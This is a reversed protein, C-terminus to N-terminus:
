MEGIRWVADNGRVMFLPFGIDQGGENRVVTYYAWNEGLRGGVLAGLQDVISALSGNAGYFANAYKTRMPDTLYNLAGDVAGRRLRNLMSSFVTQLKNDVDGPSDIYIPQVWSYQGGADDEVTVTASYIGSMTYTYELATKGTIDTVDPTGDSDVDVEFLQISATSKNVFSFGATYPAIGCGSDVRIEVPLPGASTVTFSRSFSLGDPVSVTATIINAGATLPVVAFFSNNQTCASIGNV